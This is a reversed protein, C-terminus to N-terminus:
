MSTQKQTDQFKRILKTYTRSQRYSGICFCGVLFLITFARLYIQTMYKVWLEKNDSIMDLLLSKLETEYKTTPELKQEFNLHGKEWVAELKNRQNMIFPILAVSIGLLLIGTWLLGKERKGHKPSLIKQEAKTLEM